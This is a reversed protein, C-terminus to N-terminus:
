SQNVCRRRPLPLPLMCCACRYFPNHPGAGTLWRHPPVINDAKGGIQHSGSRPAAAAILNDLLNDSGAEALLLRPESDFTLERVCGLSPKYGGPVLSRATTVKRRRCRRVTFSSLLLKKGHNRRM